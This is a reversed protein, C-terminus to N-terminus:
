AYKKSEDLFYAVPQAKATPAPFKSGPSRQDVVGAASQHGHPIDFIPERPSFDPNAASVRTKVCGVCHPPPDGKNLRELSTNSWRQRWREKPFGTFALM